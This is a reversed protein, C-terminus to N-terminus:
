QDIRIRLPSTTEDQDRAPCTANMTTANVDLRTQM